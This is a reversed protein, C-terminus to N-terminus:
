KPQFKGRPYFVPAQVEKIVMTGEELDRPEVKKNFALAIRWQYGQIHYLARLRRENFLMLEEFRSSLWDAESIGVKAIARLSSVELEIPLIVEMGYVLSYPM